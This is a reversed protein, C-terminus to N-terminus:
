GESASSHPVDRRDGSEDDGSEDNADYTPVCSGVSQEQNNPVLTTDAADNGVRRLTRSPRPVRRPALALSILLRPWGGNRIAGTGPNDDQSQRSM